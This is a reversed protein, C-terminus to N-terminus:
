KGFAAYRVLLDACWFASLIFLALLPVKAWWLRWRSLCFGLLTVLSVFGWAAVAGSGTHAREAAPTWELATQRLAFCTACIGHHSSDSSAGLGTEHFCYPIRLDQSVCLDAVPALRRHREIQRQAFRSAGTRQVAPNPPM